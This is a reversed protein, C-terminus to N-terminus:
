YNGAPRTNDYGYPNAATGTPGTHYGAGGTGATTGLAGVGAPVTSGGMVGTGAHTGATTAANNYKSDYTATTATGTSAPYANGTAATTAPVTTATVMEPDTLPQRKTSPRWFKSRKGATYNNTPSPGYKKESKRKRWLM